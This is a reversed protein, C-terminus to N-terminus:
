ESIASATCLLSPPTRTCGSKNQKRFLCLEIETCFQLTIQTLKFVRSEVGKKGWIFLYIFLYIILYIIVVIIIIISIILYYCIIISVISIFLLYYIIIFLFSRHASRDIVV